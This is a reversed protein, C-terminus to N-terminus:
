HLRLPRLPSCRLTLYRSLASSPLSLARLFRLFRRFRRLLAWRQLWWTLCRLLLRLFSPLPLRLSCLLLRLCLLPLLFLLRLCLFSLLFGRLLLLCWRCLVWRPCVGGWRLRCLVWLLLCRSLPPLRSLHLRLFLLRLSLFPSLRLLLLFLFLLRLCRLFLCLLPFLIFLRSFSQLALLSDRSADSSLHPYFASLYAPFDSVGSQFYWRAM